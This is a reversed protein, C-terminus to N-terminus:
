ANNPGAQDDLYLKEFFDTLEASNKIREQDRQAAQEWDRTLTLVEVMEPTLLM